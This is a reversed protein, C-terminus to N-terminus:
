PRRESDSRVVRRHRYRAAPHREGLRARGVGFLKESLLWAAFRPAIVKQTPGSTFL